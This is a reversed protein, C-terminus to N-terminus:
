GAELGLAAFALEHASAFGSPSSDYAAANASPCAMGSSSAISSASAGRSIAHSSVKGGAGDGEEERVDLARRLQEVLQACLRVGLREGLMAAHDALRASGLAADLHVRLAVREEEGKGRRRSRDSRGGRHGLRKRGPRNADPDAQVGARRQEGGFAVDPVVDVQSSADGGRCVSPLDDERACSALERAVIEDLEALVAELVDRLRDRDVLEAVLAERRQVRERVRVERAWGAREDAALALHRLYEVEYAVTTAEHRQGTCTSGPLRPERDLDRGLEHRVEPVGNDPDGKRRQTIRSEHRLSNRLSEVRPGAGRLVDASSLKEQEEVVELLDDVRCRVERIEEGYTRVEM